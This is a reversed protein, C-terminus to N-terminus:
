VACTGQGWGLATAGCAFSLYADYGGTSHPARFLTVIRQELTWVNQGNSTQFTYDGFNSSKSEFPSPRMGLLQQVNPKKNVRGVKAKQVGARKTKNRVTM